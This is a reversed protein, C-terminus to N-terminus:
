ILFDGFVLMPIDANAVIKELGKLLTHVQYCFFVNSSLKELMNAGSVEVTFSVNSSSICRGYKSMRLINTSQDSGKRGLFRTSQAMNRAINWPQVLLFM